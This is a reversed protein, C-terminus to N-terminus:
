FSELPTVNYLEIAPDKKKLAKVFADRDKKTTFGYLDTSQVMVVLVRYKYAKRKM